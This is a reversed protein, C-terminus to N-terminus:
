PWAERVLGQMGEVLEQEAAQSLKKMRGKKKVEALRPSSRLGTGKKVGPKQWVSLSTLIWQVAWQDGEGGEDPRTQPRVSIISPDQPPTQPSHISRRQRTATSDQGTSTM